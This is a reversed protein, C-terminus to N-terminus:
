FEREQARLWREPVENNSAYLYDNHSCAIFKRGNLQMWWRGTKKSQLFVTIENGAFTTHYQNFNHMDDFGSENKGRNRGDIYYWVMQAIQLATIGQKDEEPVFGYIGFSEAQGSQGAFNSLSCAEEGSFGNPSIGGAPADSYRIAKIDFSVFRSDRLVPEM